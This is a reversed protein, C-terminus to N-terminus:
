MRVRSRDTASISDHTATRCIHLTSIFVKQKRRHCEGCSYSQLCLPQGPSSQVIATVYRVRTRPKKHARASDLEDESKRRVPTLGAPTGDPTFGSTTKPMAASPISFPWLWLTFYPSRSPHLFLRPVSPPRRLRGSKGLLVTGAGSEAQPLKVHHVYRAVSSSASEHGDRAAKDRGQRGGGIM